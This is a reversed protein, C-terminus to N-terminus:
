AKSKRRVPIWVASEYDREEPEGKSYWEMDINAAIEYESNGPLWEKYIRTNVAQIAEPMPGTCRFKAWTCAPIEFIKMGKPVAGGRYRGAIVYRFYEGGAGDDFCIGFEGVQNEWVAERVAKKTQDTEEEKDSQQKLYRTQFEKWFEPADM